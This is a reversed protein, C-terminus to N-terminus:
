LAKAGESRFDGMLLLGLAIGQAIYAFRVGVPCLEADFIKM